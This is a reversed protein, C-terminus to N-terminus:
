PNKNRLWYDYPIITGQDRLNEIETPTRVYGRDSENVPRWNPDKEENTGPERVNKKFRYEMAGYKVFNNQAEFLSPVNAGGDYWPDASQVSDDEWFCIPCIEYCGSEEFVKYGCCPCTIM